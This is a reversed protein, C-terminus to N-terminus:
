RILIMKRSYITKGITLKCYYVGSPIKGKESMSPNWTFMYDGATKNGLENRSIMKGSVDFFSITVEQPERTEGITYPVTTSPNFPNPYNQGLSSSANPMLGSAKIPGYKVGNIEDAEVIYYYYDSYRDECVDLFGYEPKGYIPNLNRKEMKSYTSKEGRYINFGIGACDNGTSWSLIIESDRRECTASSITVATKVYLTIDIQLSDGETFNINTITTDNYGEASAQLSYVSPPLHTFFYLSDTFENFTGIINDEYNRLTITTGDPTEDSGKSLVSGFIKGSPRELSYVFTSDNFHFYHYGSDPLAAVINSTSQALKAIGWGYVFSWGWHEPYYDHNMTFKFDITDPPAGPEDIFKLKVWEHNGLPTMDNDTDEPDCTIGSFNGVLQISSIPNGYLLGFALCVFISALLLQKSIKLMM